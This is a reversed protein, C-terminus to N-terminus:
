KVQEFFFVGKKNSIIIDKLGDANIDKVVFRNGIGSNNDIEHPIWQPNKGPIFEFWYLVAPEYSGPDGGDQHALYRKGTILDPHGDGNMDEFALCHSQSFLKSIEHTVWVINGNADKTQEHWWIGYKHASSNIIDEDGDEDVDYVYMNACEEGFDAAHFKWNADTVNAPSEWWGTRIIVDNRGDKNVDGWGLGHPVGNRLRIPTWGAQHLSICPQVRVAM